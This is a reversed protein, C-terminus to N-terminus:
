KIYEFATVVLKVGAVKSAIHTANKAEEPTVIGILFVEGNETVVKINRANTHKDAILQSKVNATIFADNTLTGGGIRPAIRIQNYIKMVGDVQKVLREAELSQIKNQAQGTLLINGNYATGVIRAGAFQARHDKIAIGVRSSLTTDDVQTGMTRPDLATKATVAAGTGLAVAACGQLGLVTTIISIILLIKKCIM